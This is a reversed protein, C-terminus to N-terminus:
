EIGIRRGGRGSCFDIEEIREDKSLLISSRFSSFLVKSSIQCVIKLSHNPFYLILSSNGSPHLTPFILSKQLIIQPLVGDFFLM